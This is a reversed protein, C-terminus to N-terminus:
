LSYSAQLIAKDEEIITSQGEIFPAFFRPNDQQLSEIQKFKRLVEECAQDLEFDLSILEMKAGHELLMAAIEAKGNKLALYLPSCSQRSFQNPNAGRKLLEEVAEKFNTIVAYALLPLGNLTQSVDAGYNCLLVLANISRNIITDYLPSRQVTSRKKGDALYSTYFYVANPDAGKELYLRACALFVDEKPGTKLYRITTNLLTEESSDHNFISFQKENNTKLNPDIGYHLDKEIKGVQGAMAHVHYVGYKKHREVYHSNYYEKFLNLEEVVYNCSSSEFRSDWVHEKHNEVRSAYQLTLWFIAMNSSGFRNDKNIFNAFPNLKYNNVAMNLSSRARELQEKPSYMMWLEACRGRNWPFHFQNHSPFKAELDKAACVNSDLVYGGECAMLFFFFLNKIRVRDKIKIDPDDTRTNLNNYIQLVEKAKIRIYEESGEKNLQKLYEEVSNVQVPIGEKAFFDIYDKKYQEQCWFILPNKQGFQKFNEAISTIGIVDQGGQNFKPPGIWVLNVAEDTPKDIEEKQGTLDEFKENM